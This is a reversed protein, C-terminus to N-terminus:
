KYALVFRDRSSYDQLISVDRWGDSNFLNKCDDGQQFGIESILFGGAKLYDKGQHSIKRLLDLGDDGSFLALAPESALVDKGMLPKESPKVYPPNVTIAEFCRGQFPEFLDGQLLEINLKLLDVNKHAYSLAETSIDSASVNLEPIETKLAIAIAGSGTCLDLVSNQKQLRKLAADVLLETEPRPILVGPGVQLEIGYFETSGCIYQVPEGKARRSLLPRIVALEDESLPKDFKLYLEMRNLKLAHGILWEADVRAHEIGARTLYDTSLAIVEKISKM